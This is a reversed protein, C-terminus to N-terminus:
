LKREQYIPLPRSHLIPYCRYCRYCRYRRYRGWRYRRYCGRYWGWLGAFAGKGRAFARLLPRQALGSVSDSNSTNSTNGTNGINGCKPM